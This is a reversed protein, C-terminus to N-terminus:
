ISSALASAVKSVGSEQDMSIQRASALMLNVTTEINGRMAKSFPCERFAEEVLVRATHLDIGPLDVSLKARLFYSTADRNLDIAADILVSDPISIPRRSAVLRITSEFCASWAAGLLQEPNTGSTIANPFAFRLELNGDASWCKGHERGGVTCTIARYLLEEEASVMMTQLM